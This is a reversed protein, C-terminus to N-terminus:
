QHPHHIQLYIRIVCVFHTYVISCSISYLFHFDDRARILFRFLCLCLRSCTFVIRTQIRVNRLWFACLNWFCVFLFVSFWFWDISAEFRLMKNSKIHTWHEPRKVLPAWKLSWEDIEEKKIILAWMIRGIFCDYTEFCFLHLNPPSNIANWTRQRRRRICQFWM